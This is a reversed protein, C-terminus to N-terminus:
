VSLSSNRDEKYHYCTSAEVEIYSSSVSNVWSSLSPDGTCPSIFYIAGVHLITLNCEEARLISIINGITCLNFVEPVGSTLWVDLM